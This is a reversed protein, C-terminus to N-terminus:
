PSVSHGIVRRQRNITRAKPLLPSRISGALEYRKTNRTERFYRREVLHRSWQPFLGLGQSCASESASRPRATVQIRRLREGFM